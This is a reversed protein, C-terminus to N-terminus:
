DALVGERPAAVVLGNNCVDAEVGTAVGRLKDLRRLETVLRTVDELPIDGIEVGIVSMRGPDVSGALETVENGTGIRLGLIM